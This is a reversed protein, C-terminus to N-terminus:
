TNLLTSNRFCTPALSPLSGSAASGKGENDGHVGSLSGPVVGTNEGASSAISPIGGQPGSSVVVAAIVGTDAAHAGPTLVTAVGATMPQNPAGTGMCGQTYKGGIANTAGM